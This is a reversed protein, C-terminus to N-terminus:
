HAGYGAMANVCQAALALLHRIDHAIFVSSEAFISLGALILLPFGITLLNMQPAFVAALGVTVNVCLSVALVPAALLVAGSMLGAGLRAMAAWSHFLDVSVGSQFSHALATFLWVPGGAVMYGMLGVWFMIDYLVPTISTAERFQLEAFGLGLSLGVLEGASAVAVVVIQMAFGLLAGFIIQQGAQLFVAVPDGPFEPLHPLWFALAVSYGLILALKVSRPIMASSYLPATLFLGTLRLFPWLFQGLWGLVDPATLVLVPSGLGGCPWDM